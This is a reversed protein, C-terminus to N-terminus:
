SPICYLVIENLRHGHLRLRFKYFPFKEKIWFPIEWIDEVKHYVSIAMFPKYKGITEEMGKLARFEAGEIDMKIFNPRTFLIVDDPKFVPLPEGDESISSASSEVKFKLITAEEWIGAPVITASFTYRKGFFRLVEKIDKIFYIIPEFAIVEEVQHKFFYFLWALTDGKFSGMDVFRLKKDKFFDRVFLAFYQVEKSPFPYNQITPNERFKSIKELTEISENDEFLQRLQLLIKSPIPKFRCRSLSIFESLFEPYLKLTDEFSYVEEFGINKLDEKTPPGVKLLFTKIEAPLLPFSPTSVFIKAEKPANKLRYIPVGFIERESKYQDIFFDVNVGKRSLVKYLTCGGNGAGYIGIKM